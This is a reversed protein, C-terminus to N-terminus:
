DPITPLATWINPLETPRVSAGIPFANIAPSHDASDALIGIIIRSAFCDRSQQCFDVRIRELSASQRHRDRFRAIVKNLAFQGVVIEPATIGCFSGVLCVYFSPDDRM